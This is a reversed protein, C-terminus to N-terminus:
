FISLYTQVGEFGIWCRLYQLSYLNLNSRTTLLSDACSTVNVDLSSYTQRVDVLDDTGGGADDDVMGDVDVHVPETNFSHDDQTQQVPLPFHNESVLLPNQNELDSDHPDEVGEMYVDYEAGDQNAVVDDNRGLTSIWDDYTRRSYWQDGSYLERLFKGDQHYEHACQGMFDVRDKCPCRGNCPITYLGYCGVILEPNIFEESEFNIPSEEM